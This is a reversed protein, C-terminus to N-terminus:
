EEDRGDRELFAVGERYRNRLAKMAAKSPSARGTLLLTDVPPFDERRALSEAQAATLVLISRLGRSRAQAAAGALGAFEGGEGHAFAVGSWLGKRLFPPLGALSKEMPAPDVSGAPLMAYTEVGLSAARLLYEEGGRGLEKAPDLPILVGGADGAGPRVLPMPRAADAVRFVEPIPTIAIKGLFARHEADAGGVSRAEVAIRGGGRGDGVALPGPTLPESGVTVWLRRNRATIHVPVNNPWSLPRNLITSLGAGPAREQLMVTGDAFRLRLFSQSDIFRLYLSFELGEGVTIETRLDVDGWNESGTLWAFASRGGEPVVAIGDKEYQVMGSDTQWHRRDASEGSESGSDVQWRRDVGAGGHYIYPDDGALWPELLALLDEPLMTSPIQLRTLRRPNAERANYAVGDRTFALSFREDIIKSNIAEADRNPTNGFFNSPMFLYSSIKQGTVTELLDVAETYDAEARATFEDFTEVPEGADDRLYDALYYAPRERNETGPAYMEYGHSGIEWFDSESLANVEGRSMFVRTWADMMQPYVYMTARMGTDSLAEQGYIAGDKRGAEFMIHVPKDPLPEDDEYFNILDRTTVSTYGAGDLAALLEKVRDRTIRASGDDTRAVTSFSIAAFGDRQTWSDRDPEKPAGRVLVANLFWAFAALLSVIQFIIGATRKKSLKMGHKM